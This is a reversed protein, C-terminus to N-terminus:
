SLTTWRFFVNKKAGMPIWFQKKEEHIKFWRNFNITSWKTCKIFWIVNLKNEFEEHNWLQFLKLCFSKQIQLNQQLKMTKYIFCYMETEFPSCPFSFNSSIEWYFIFLIIEKSNKTISNKKCSYLRKWKNCISMYDWKENFTEYM